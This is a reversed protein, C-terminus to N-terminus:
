SVHPPALIARIAHITADADRRDPSGQPLGPLENALRNLLLSLDGTKWRKLESQSLRRM